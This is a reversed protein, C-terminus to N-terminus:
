IKGVEIRVWYVEWDSRAGLSRCMSASAENGEVVYGFALKEETTGNDLVGGMEERFLKATLSKALGLRRHSAEVHLTTLSSDLGVFAWAVPMSRQGEAGDSYIALSRLIALTRDQRPISTRSRVLPYHEENLKGWRLGPPLPKPEPLDAVRFMFMSNCNLERSFSEPLSGLNRLCPITCEHIAGWLMTDPAASVASEGHISPALPLSKIKRVLSTLLTTIADKDTSDKYAENSVVEEEWSGFFWVETEPRCARDVFACLWAQQLSPDSPSGPSSDQPLSTLLYTNEQRRGFHLRRALPLSARFCSPRHLYALATDLRSKNAPDALHYAYIGPSPQSTFDGM